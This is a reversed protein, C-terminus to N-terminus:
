TVGTYLTHGVVLLCYATLIAIAIRPPTTLTNYAYGQLSSYVRLTVWDRSEIPDISDFVDGKGSLWYNGDLGSGENPAVTKIDGQLISGWGTRALGNVTLMVIISTAVSIRFGGQTPQEQSLVSFLSSNLGEMSPDLYQAWSRSINISRQPTGYHGYVYGLQDIKQAPPQHTDSIPYPIMRRDKGEEPTSETISLGSGSQEVILSSSIWAAALNCLMMNYGNNELRPPFLIAAGISSGNFLDAPLEIWRLRSDQLNGPTELLQHYFYYPHEIVMASKVAGSPNLRYSHNGTALHPSNAFQLLPFSLHRSDSDNTIRDPICVAASYPQSYNSAIRHAANSQDSLPSGHGAGATVNILALSWISAADTLADAVVAQQTTAAYKLQEPGAGRGSSAGVYINRTSSRGHLLAIEPSMRSYRLQLSGWGTRLFDRIAYWESAPCVNSAEFGVVACAEPVTTGDI